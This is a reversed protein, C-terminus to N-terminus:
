RLTPSQCRILTAISNAHRRVHTLVPHRCPQVFAASTSVCKAMPWPSEGFPAPSLATRMPRVTTSAPGM